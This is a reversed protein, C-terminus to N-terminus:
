ATETTGRMKPQAELSRKALGGLREAWLATQYNVIGVFIRRYGGRVGHDSRPEAKPRLPYEQAIGAGRLWVGDEWGVLEVIASVLKFLGFM